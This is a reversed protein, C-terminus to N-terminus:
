KEPLVGDNDIVKQVTSKYLAWLAPNHLPNGLLVVKNNRDLLFSHLQRSQPLQPNQRVFDANLDIFVPYDFKDAKLSANVKSVDEKPPTFLYIVSFWQSLSDAYEVINNWDSMRSVQCTHCMLSDYWVVLKAPVETFDILVTDRGSWVANLDVPVIIQQGMFQEIEKVLRNNTCSCFILLPLIYSFKM